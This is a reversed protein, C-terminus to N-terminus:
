APPVEYKMLQVFKNQQIGYVVVPGGSEVRNSHRLKSSAFLLKSRLFRRFSPITLSYIYFNSMVNLLTLYESSRELDIYSPSSNNVFHEMMTCVAYPVSSVCYVSGTMVVTVVGQWRLSGCSRRSVKRAESLYQLTLVTTLIVLLVSSFNALSVFVDFFKGADSDLLSYDADFEYSTYDFILAGKCLLLSTISIIAFSLWVVCCTVHAKKKTWNSTQLPYRVLLFKSTTLVGVLVNCVPLAWFEIFRHINASINGLVWKNLIMSIVSPLIFTVSIVLDSVAMHQIIAIIFKNLKFANHRVSAVLIITDGVVSSILVLMLYGIWFYRGVENQIAHITANTPRITM